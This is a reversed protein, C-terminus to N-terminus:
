SKRESVFFVFDQHLLGASRGSPLPAWRRGPLLTSFSFNDAHQPSTIDAYTKSASADTFPFSETTAGKTGRRRENDDNIM